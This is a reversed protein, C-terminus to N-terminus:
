PITLTYDPNIEDPPSSVTEVVFWSGDVMEEHMWTGGQQLEYCTPFGLPPYFCIRHPARAARLAPEIRPPLSLVLVLFAGLTVILAFLALQRQRGLIRAYVFEQVENGPLPRRPMAVLACLWCTIPVAAITLM